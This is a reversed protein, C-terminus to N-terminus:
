TTEEQENKIVHYEAGYTEVTVSKIYVRSLPVYFSDVPQSAIKDLAALSEEIKEQVGTAEQQRQWGCYAGGMYGVRAAYRIM